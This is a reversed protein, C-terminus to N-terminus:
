AGDSCGRRVELAAAWICQCCYPLTHSCKLSMGKPVAAVLICHVCLCACVILSVPVPVPVFQSEAVSVPVPVLCAFACVNGCM